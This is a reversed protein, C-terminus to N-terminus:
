ITGDKREGWLLAQGCNPCFNAIELTLVNECTPCLITTCILCINKPIQKELRIYDCLCNFNEASAAIANEEINM